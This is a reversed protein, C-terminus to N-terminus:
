SSLEREDLPDNTLFIEMEQIRQVRSLDLTIM